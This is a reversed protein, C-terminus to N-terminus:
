SAWGPQTQTPMAQRPEQEVLKHIDSAMKLGKAEAM